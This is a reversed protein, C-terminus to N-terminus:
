SAQTATAVLLKRLGEVPPRDKYSLIPKEIYIWSLAALSLSLPVAALGIMDSKFWQLLTLYVLGHILYLTYSITGIATLPRSRLLLHAPTKAGASEVLFSISGAVFSCILPLGFVMFLPSERIDLGLFPRIWFLIAGLG